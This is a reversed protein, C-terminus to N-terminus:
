YFRPCSIVHIIRAQPVIPDAYVERKVFRTIPLIEAGVGTNTQMSLAPIESLGQDIKGNAGIIRGNEIVPTLTQGSDSVILDGDEYNAGTSLVKVGVVEGIVDVGETDAVQEPFLYNSGPNTVIINVVGGNEVVAEATAGRGIDCDDVISVFPAEEYDMGIDSMNVGIVEGIENVVADAAAGFGGGGFIVVRPPSCDKSSVNCGGVLGELPSAGSASGVTSGIGAVNPFSLGVIDDLLNPLGSGSLTHFKDLINNVKMVNKMDPGGNIVFDFSDPCNGGTCEFLKQAANIRSMAGTMLSQFSPMAKGTFASLGALIPGIATQIMNNLGAMLGGLFQEAACLPVNLINGL